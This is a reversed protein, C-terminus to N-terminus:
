DNFSYQTLQKGLGQEGIAPACRYRPGLRRFVRPRIGMHRLHNRHCCHPRRMQPCLVDLGPM